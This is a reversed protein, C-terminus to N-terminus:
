VHSVPPFPPNRECVARWEADTIPHDACGYLMDDNIGGGNRSPQGCVRCPYRNLYHWGCTECSLVFAGVWVKDSGCRPCTDAMCDMIGVPAYFRGPVGRPGRGGM